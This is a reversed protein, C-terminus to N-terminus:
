CWLWMNTEKQPPGHPQYEDMTCGHALAQDHITTVNLWKSNKLLHSSDQANSATYNESSATPPIAGYGQSINNADHM